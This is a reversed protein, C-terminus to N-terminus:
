FNGLNVLINFRVLWKVADFALFALCMKTQVATPMMKNFCDRM